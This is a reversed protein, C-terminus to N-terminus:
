FGGRRGSTSLTHASENRKFGEGHVGVTGGKRPIKKAQHADIKGEGDRL